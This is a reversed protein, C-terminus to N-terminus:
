EPKADNQGRSSALRKNRLAKRAKVLNPYGHERMKAATARGGRMALMSRAARSRLEAPVNKRGLVQAPTLSRGLRGVADFAAECVADYIEESRIWTPLLDEPINIVFPILESAKGGKEKAYMSRMAATLQQRAIVSFTM